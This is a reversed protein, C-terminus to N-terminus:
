LNDHQVLTFSSSSCMTACIGLLVTRQKNTIQKTSSHRNNAQRNIPQINIKYSNVISSCPCHFSNAYLNCCTAAGGSPKKWVTLALSWTM